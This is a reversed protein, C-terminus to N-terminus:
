HDNTEIINKNELVWSITKKLGDHISYRPTFGIKSKMKKISTAKRIQGTPKSLDFVLKIHKKDLIDLITEALKRITIEEDTGINVPDTESYKELAMLMGEVADKVYLFSRSQNGDGWIILEKEADIARLILAPIVHSYTRHFNDRPGYVNELRVIASKLSFEKQYLMATKEAIRKAWGYGIATPEPDELFGDEEVFPVTCGRKYICTSSTVLIREVTNSKSCADLLNTTMQVDPTFMSAPHDKSFHIGGVTSALHFVIEIDKCINKCNEIQSLDTKVYEIKDIVKSLNSLDERRGTVKVNAGQKVLSEVMHSGIFGTGGTVLVNKESYFGNM